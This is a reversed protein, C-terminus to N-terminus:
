KNLLKVVRNVYLRNECCYVVVGRFVYVKFMFVNGRVGKEWFIFIIEVKVIDKRLRGILNRFIRGRNVDYGVILRWQNSFLLKNKVVVQLM